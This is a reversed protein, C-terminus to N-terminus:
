EGLFSAANIPHKIVMELDRLADDQVGLFNEEPVGLDELIKIFQHNLLMTLPKYAAGCLELDRWGEKAIYKTMSNRILLQEGSLSTDLSIVGKAGRYRVQLVTPRAARRDPPLARWIKQLLDLSITGCGDSFTYGNREVDDQEETVYATKPVPVAFITDSFAQGIRAACKASCHIRTFDGLDRIVDSACLLEGDHCFPAMFWAQHCRLSSHSFGLFEYNREAVRIGERLVKSFRAYVATQSARPDYLVSLGDEDAFFVRMFYETNHRYKRLIRNSVGWDPGRLMIGTPTVTAKYTLALHNQKRRRGLDAEVLELDKYDKVNDGILNAISGARFAENKLHPGPTPIQQGLKRVGLATLKSGHQAAINYIDPLLDRMQSPAITGELVLALLQFRVSFSFGFKLDLSVCAILLEQLAEYDEEVSRTHECQQIPKWCYADPVTYDRVFNWAHHAIQISSFQLKYVMCLGANRTHHPQLACLRHLPPSNVSQLSMSKFQTSLDIEDGGTYLHLGETTEIQYIKPPSKLTFTLGAQKGSEISPVVHEIIAHPIDIRCHWNFGEDDSRQLYLVLASKGFTVYGSRSDKFKSDYQLVASKNCSWLGNTMNVFRFTPKDSQPGQTLLKSGKMRLEDEERLLAVIKMPSPQGAKNSKKCRLRSSQMMLPLSGREGHYQLFIKGNKPDPVTLIAYGM